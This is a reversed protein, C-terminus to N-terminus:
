QKTHKNTQKYNTEPIRRNDQDRLWKKSVIETIIKNNNPQGERRVSEEQVLMNLMMNVYSSKFPWGRLEHCNSICQKELWRLFFLPFNFQLRPSAQDCTRKRLSIFSFPKLLFSTKFPLRNGILTVKRCSNQKRPLNFVGGFKKNCKNSATKMSSVRVSATVHLIRNQDNVFWSNLMTDHEQQHWHRTVCGKALTLLSVCM